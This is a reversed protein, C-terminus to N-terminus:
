PKKLFAFGAYEGDTWRLQAPVMRGDELEIMLSRAQGVGPIYEGKVGGDSIDELKFPHPSGDIHLGLVRGNGPVRQDERREPADVKEGIESVIHLKVAKQGVPMVPSQQADALPLATGCIGCEASMRGVFWQSHGCGPCHNSQDPRFLVAYGRATLDLQFSEESKLAKIAGM